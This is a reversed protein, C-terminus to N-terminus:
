HVNFRNDGNTGLLNELKQGTTYEIKLLRDTFETDNFEQGDHHGEQERRRKTMNNIDDVFRQYHV